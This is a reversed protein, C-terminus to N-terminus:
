RGVHVGPIMQIRRRFFYWALTLGPISWLQLTLWILSFETTPERGSRAAGSPGTDQWLLYSRRMPPWHWRAIGVVSSRRQTVWARLRRRRCGPELVPVISDAKWGSLQAMGLRVRLRGRPARSEVQYEYNFSNVCVLLVAISLLMSAVNVSRVLCALRVSRCGGLGNWIARLTSQLRTM